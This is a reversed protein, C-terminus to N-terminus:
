PEIAVNSCEPPSEAFDAPVWASLQYISVASRKSHRLHFMERGSFMANAFDDSNSTLNALGHGGHRSVEGLTGREERGDEEQEEEECRGVWM